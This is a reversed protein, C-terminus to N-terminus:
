QFFSHMHKFIYREIYKDSTASYSIVMGKPLVEQFDIRFGRGFLPSSKQFSKKGRMFLINLLSEELPPANGLDPIDEM